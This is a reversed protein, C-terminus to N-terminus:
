EASKTGVASPAKYESSIIYVRVTGGVTLLKDKAVDHVAKLWAFVEAGVTEVSQKGIWETVAAVPIFKVPDYGKEWMPYSQM